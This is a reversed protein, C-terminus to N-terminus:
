AAAGHVRLYSEDDWIGDKELAARLFTYLRLTAAVDCCGYFEINASALHKWPFPFRVFQACFQLHAPLDPQWHHFMQLTDHIIGCPNLDLGEREGAARLVRNDFLWVNHGCKPNPSHLIRQIIPLFGGEYPIAIGSGSVMSFQVLRVFTDSFGERADEDLSTSEQTEIDYALCAQPNAEVGMAFSAAEDITPHTRYDLTGHTSRDEPDVNWLWERDRGAAIEVARRLIRAFLGQHSAKGRRLFAPHFDGIVPIADANPTAIGLEVLKQEAVPPWKRGATSPLVYGALHTIGRQEGAMGTLERLAVGGLAVICRPHHQAIAADLNPRCHNIASHEWPAGELWNNRPRCRQVNTISFQARDMGMRRFSRELLSGAPAYPRLPLQDRAEMEGSAEAVIMVGNAGTGEVRSFDTGHAHCACGLCSDPKHRATV